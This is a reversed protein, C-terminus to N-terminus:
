HPLFHDQLINNYLIDKMNCRINFLVNGVTVVVTIHETGYNIENIVYRSDYKQHILKKSMSDTM